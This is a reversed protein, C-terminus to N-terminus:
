GLLFYTLSSNSSIQIARELEVIAEDQRGLIMLAHGINSHVNPLQPNIALAKRWYGIAEEFKGEALSVEGMVNYVDPRKPNINLVRNYFKLAEVANGHRHWVNGMIMLSNDNGLFDSMLKEALEMEEKKLAAIEQETRLPERVPLLSQGETQNPSQKTKQQKEDTRLLLRLSFFGATAICVIVAGVLVKVARRRAPSFSPRPHGSSRTKRQGTGKYKKRQQHNKKHKKM